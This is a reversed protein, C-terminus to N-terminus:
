LFRGFHETTCIFIKPVEKSIQLLIMGLQPLEVGWNLISLVKTVALSGVLYCNEAHLHSGHLVHCFWYSSSVDDGSSGSSPNRKM